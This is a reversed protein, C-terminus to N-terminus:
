AERSAGFSKGNPGGSPGGIDSPSVVLLPQGNTQVFAQAIKEKNLNPNTTLYACAESLCDTYGKGSFSSPPITEMISVKGGVNNVQTLNMMVM